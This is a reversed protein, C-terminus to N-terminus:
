VNFQTQCLIIYSPRILSDIGAASRAILKVSYTDPQLYLNSPNALASSNGDGFDWESQNANTSLNTFNVQLPACGETTDAVFDAQPQAILDISFLFFCYLLITRNM